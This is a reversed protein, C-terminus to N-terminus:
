ESKRTDLLEYDETQTCTQIYRREKFGIHAQVEAPLSAVTSRNTQPGPHYINANQQSHNLQLASPSLQHSGQQAGSSTPVQFKHGPQQGSGSQWSGPVPQATTSGPHFSPLHQEIGSDHKKRTGVAGSSYSHRGQAVGSVGDTNESRDPGQTAAPPLSSESPLAEAPGPGSWITDMITRGDDALLYSYHRGHSHSWMWQTYSPM